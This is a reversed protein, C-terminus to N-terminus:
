LPSTLILDFNIGIKQLSQAVKATKERGQDTLPRAADNTYESRDAAIGHRILYIQTM